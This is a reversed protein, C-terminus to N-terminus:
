KIRERGWHIDSKIVKAPNGVAICGSAIHKGPIISNAGIIADNEIITGKLITVSHGIWVHNGITVDKAHNVKENQANYITHSDGNMVFINVSFICDKDVAM